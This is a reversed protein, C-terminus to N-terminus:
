VAAAPAGMEEDDAENGQQSQVLAALNKKALMEMLGGENLAGFVAQVGASSYTRTLMEPPLSLDGPPDPSNVSVWM